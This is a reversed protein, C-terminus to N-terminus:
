AEKIGVADTLNSPGGFQMMGHITTALSEEEYPDFPLGGGGVYGRYDDLVISITELEDRIEDIILVVQGTELDLYYRAAGSADDFAMELDDFKISLRRETMAQGARRPYVPDARQSSNPFLNERSMATAGRHINGEIAAESMKGREGAPICTLHM